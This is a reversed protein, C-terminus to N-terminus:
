CVFFLFDNWFYKTQNCFLFVISEVFRTDIDGNIAKFDELEGHMM